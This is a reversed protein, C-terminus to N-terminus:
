PVRQVELGNTLDTGPDAASLVVVDQPSLGSLIEVNNLNQTGVQVPTRALKGKVIRYVFDKAGETHLAERPITLVNFRQSWTVTVIVNANPPLEGKADDVSILCEGVSRTGYPIVTTPAQEVHGHWSQTPKADWTIKVAEGRVLRGIEPEDFYARIQVRNLDAIDMLDDGDRVFDYPSVPISYVTGSIPAHIDSTSLDAKAAAIQAKAEAVRAAASAKDTQDYRTTMRTRANKVAENMAILKSQARQVESASVAGKAQLALDTSLENQAVKQDNLAATLDMQFRERDELSGGQQIAQQSLQAGAATAEAGALRSRADADSMSILLQGSQVHQNLEVNIKQVVGSGRAHAQFPDIPEVKGNTSVTSLLNGYTVPAVKVQVTSRTLFRVALVLLVAAVIGALWLLIPTARTQEAKAM